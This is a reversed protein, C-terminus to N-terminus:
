PQPFIGSREKVVASLHGLLTNLLHVADASARGAHQHETTWKLALILPVVM